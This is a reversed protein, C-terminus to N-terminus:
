LRLLDAVRARQARPAGLFLELTKARRLYLHAPHEWTFGIGGHIQINAKAARMFVDSCYAKATAAALPADDPADVLAWAAYAAAARAFETRMLLDACKHKVAQFSGIARGFQVRTKAYDVAMDLCALAGGVQEAALAVLAQDVSASVGASADGGPGIRRAPAADFTVDAVQRTLDLSPLPARRVGAGSPETAFVGLGDPTQAVVLLFDATMADLVVGRSGDLVWSTGRRTATVPAGRRGAFAVAVRASGDAIRPLFEARAAEDDLAMLLEAAFVVTSLYPGDYLARGMEQLAIGREVASFGAGGYEEPIALGQLGLQDALLHWVARDDGESTDAHRQVVALPSRDALFRRVTARLERQEETDALQLTAEKPSPRAACFRREAAIL